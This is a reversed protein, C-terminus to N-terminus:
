LSILPLSAYDKDLRSIGYRRALNIAERFEQANVARSISPVNYAQYQPRYQAMINLYTNPSVEQSLFRVTKETGALGDPLVLHRVLLGRQAIGHEDIQLDGVQRHMESVAVRNVEPYDKVGSLQEGSRNDSYKMDPMYIDIIGDLLRLTEQSDYGGTNYVLPINLGQGAALYLADLIYPVVHTPSVLNINHCSREQLSLMIRALTESSTPNGEGLQSISYNQCFVCHLNCYTFFITGSGHRGVLPPEEGFHPGYSSVIVQGSVRCTGSEGALRNVECHRPCLCCAELIARAKEARTKLEGTLHM